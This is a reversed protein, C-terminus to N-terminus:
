QHFSVMIISTYPNRGGPDEPYGEQDTNKGKGRGRTCMEGTSAELPRMNREQPIGREGEDPPIPHFPYPM